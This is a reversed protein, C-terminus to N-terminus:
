DCIKVECELKIGSQKYVEHKALEIIYLADQFTAGGKNVLFNAHKESFGVGNYFYGKLGSIELLRGAYDNKPNKFCSGCSPNSPHSSRMHQFVELLEYRFGQKKHFRAAFIVGNSDRGRYCLGLKEKEIWEGNINLSMLIESMEYKKMGANMNCLAGINGPLNKLFELGAFDNQKFFLFAHLSKVSGGMEIYDAHVSIYNFDLGLVALNLAHPSVLLNNAGGIIRLSHSDLTLCSIAQSQVVANCHLTYNHYIRPKSNLSEINNQLTTALSSLSQLAKCPQLTANIDSFEIIKIPNIGGIKISSYKSFDLTIEQMGACM